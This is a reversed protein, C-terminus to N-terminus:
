HPGEWANTGDPRMGMPVMFARGTGTSPTQGNWDPMAPPGDLTSEQDPHMTNYIDRITKHDKVIRGQDDKRAKGQENRSIEAYGIRDLIPSDVPIKGFDVMAAVVILSLISLLEAVKSVSAVKRLAATTRKHGSALAMMGDVTAEARAILVGAVTPAVASLDSAVSVTTELLDEALKANRPQRTVPPLPNGEADVRPKRPRRQRTRPQLEETEMGSFLDEIEEPEPEPPANEIDRILTSTM